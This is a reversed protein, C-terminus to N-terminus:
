GLLKIMEEETFEDDYPKKLRANKNLPVMKLDLLEYNRKGGSIGGRIIDKRKEENM